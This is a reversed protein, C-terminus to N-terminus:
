RKPRPAARWFGPDAAVWAPAPMSWNPRVAFVRAGPESAAAAEADRRTRAPRLGYWTSHDVVWVSGLLPRPTRSVTIVVFRAGVPSWAPGRSLDARYVGFGEVPPGILDAKRATAAALARSLRENAAYAQRVRGTDADRDFANLWWAEHPGTLSELGLYPNPCRLDACVQAADDEVVRYASDAGPKLFDRFLYILHAPAAQTTLPGAGLGFQGIGIAAGLIALRSIM